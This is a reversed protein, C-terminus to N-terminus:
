LDIVSLKRLAELFAEITKQQKRRMYGKNPDANNSRFFVHHTGDKFDDGVVAMLPDVVLDVIQTLSAGGLKAKLDEVAAEVNSEEINDSALKDISPSLAVLFNVAAKGENAKAQVDSSSLSTTGKLFVNNTWAKNLNEALSAIKTRTQIKGKFAQFAAVAKQIKAQKAPDPAEPNPDPQKHEPFSPGTSADENSGCTTAALLMWSIALLQRPRINM